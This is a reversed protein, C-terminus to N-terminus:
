NLYLVKPGISAYEYKGQVSASPKAVAQCSVGSYEVEFGQMESRWLLM